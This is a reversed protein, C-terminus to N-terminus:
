GEAGCIQYHIVDANKRQPSIKYSEGVPTSYAILRQRRITDTVEPVQVQPTQPFELSNKPPRITPPDMAGGRENGYWTFGKM